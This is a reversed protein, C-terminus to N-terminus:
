EKKVKLVRSMRESDYVRGVKFYLEAIKVYFTITEIAMRAQVISDTECAIKFADICYRIIRVVGSDNLCTGPHVNNLLHYLELTEKELETGVVRQAFVECITVLGVAAPVQVPPSKLM